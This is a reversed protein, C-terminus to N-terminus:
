AEGGIVHVEPELRIGTEALVRQQARRMLALVDSARARGRNVIFNAHVSSIEADGCREGKLGALEILRGAREGPPNKFVSGFSPLDLPQTARRRALHADIRERVAATADPRVALIASVIVSGPALGRLGRYVFRLRARGLRCRKAGTPSVVRIELVADCVEREPIGANMAVWGGVTGPIGATFELGALGRTACLRTVQAHSVGAEAFLTADPRAELRRLRHTRIVLGPLGGDLVLTNFGGGLVRHPLRHAACAALGRALEDADRPAALADAPGGVRLPTHRALPEDFRVREAFVAELARRAPGPIM